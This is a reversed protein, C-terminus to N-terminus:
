VNLLGKLNMGISTLLRFFVEFSQVDERFRSRVKLYGTFDFTLIDGDSPAAIMIVKDAGDAGGESAFTYDVGGANQVVSNKYLVYSAAQMSPLNFVTTTGDGEGVYEDVYTDLYVFFFNFAEYPGQRSLYFQWLTRANTDSLYQYSLQLNRKPYISKSKRTEKGNEFQSILTRFEIESGLPTIIDISDLSPFAAM